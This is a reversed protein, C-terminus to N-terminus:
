FISFVIINFGFSVLAYYDGEFKSLILGFLFSVAATILIGLIISVFFNTGYVTLLIATTYAGIGYFAAQTVSLLGTYGVVLNLSIGLIAYICIIIALHILYAM